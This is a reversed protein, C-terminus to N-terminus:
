VSIKKVYIFWRRKKNGKDWLRDFYSSAITSHGCVPGPEGRWLTLKKNHPSTVSYEALEQTADADM